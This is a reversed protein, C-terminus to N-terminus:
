NEFSDIATAGKYGIRKLYGFLEKKDKNQVTESEHRFLTLSTLYNRVQHYLILRMKDFSYNPKLFIATHVKYISM